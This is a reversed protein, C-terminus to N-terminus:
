PYASSSPSPWEPAPGSTRSRAPCTPVTSSRQTARSCASTTLPQQGRGSSWYRRWGDYAPQAGDLWALAAWADLCLTLPERARDALLRAVM